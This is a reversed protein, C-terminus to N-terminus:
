WMCQDGCNHGLLILISQYFGKNCIDFGVTCICVCVGHCVKCCVCLCVGSYKYIYLGLGIKLVDCIMASSIGSM